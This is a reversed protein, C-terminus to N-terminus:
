KMESEKIGVASERVKKRLKLVMSPVVSLEDIGMRLFVDTLETDAALEGCIGVWKGHAHAHEATMRILRLVAEHHPDSFPEVVANQRDAALTYQTLDNTGISFFDVLPALRDSILAAAPTEVMIGQEPIRYPIGEKELQSACLKVQEQIQKVEWESTIMPYMVSINRYVSVRLLARLQTQFIEPRTLCIRIARLGLAPNAEKQLGFYDAQKDAGIDLTRIVVPKGDMGEAVRRYAAFQEEEDPFGNRGLYLFESRFLGIGEAGCQLVQELEDASGINAVIRINKGGRSVSPLNRLHLLNKESEREKKKREDAQALMDETPNLVVEGSSGNVLVQTGDRLTKLDVPTRVVAPINRMRALIATHSNASGEVTVFALVYAPDLRMTESPSLDQAAIVSPVDLVAATEEKGKLIRVLRATVDRIDAARAQMYEDNMGDFVAAFENGTVSVAYAADLNEKEIRRCIANRFEEDQLLVRHAEFVSASEKGIKQLAEEQLVLLEAGAKRLAEQLREKQEECNNAYAYVTGSAERQWVKLPGVAIGTSVAKGMYRDM